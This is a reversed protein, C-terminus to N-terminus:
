SHPRVPALHPQLAPGGLRVRGSHEQHLGGSSWKKSQGLTSTFRPLWGHTKLGSQPQGGSQDNAEQNPGTDKLLSPGGLHTGEPIWRQLFGFPSVVSM